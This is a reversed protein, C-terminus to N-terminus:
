ESPRRTTPPSPPTAAVPRRSRKLSARAARARRIGFANGRRRGSRAHALIAELLGPCRRDALDEYVARAADVDGAAELATARLLRVDPAHPLFAIGRELIGLGAPGGKWLAFRCWFEPYAACTM